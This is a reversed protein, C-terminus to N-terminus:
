AQVPEGILADRGPVHPFGRFHVVNDFVTRCTDFTRDCGRVATVSVGVAIDLPAELDLVLVGASPHEAINFEKGALDGDNFLITGRRFYPATQSAITGGCTFQSRDTVATVTATHTFSTLSKACRADGLRKVDCTPLLQRGVTRQLRVMLGLMEVVYSAGRRRIRGFEGRRRRAPAVTTDTWNGVMVEFEAFDWDGREISEETIVDSDLVGEINLNDVNLGLSNAVQSPMVSLAASFTVGHAPHTTDSLRFKLPRDHDTFGFVEGDTRTFKVLTCLTTSSGELHTQLGSAVTSTM